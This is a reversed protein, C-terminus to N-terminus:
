QKEGGLQQLQRVVDDWDWHAAMRTVLGDEDVEYVCLMDVDTYNGDGLDNRAVQAVCCCNDGSIWRKDVRIDLKAPGITADWFQEIAARGRHGEGTPDMPSKGVPDHVVADPAYLALWAAKNGEMAYQISRKNAEVAPHTKDSM